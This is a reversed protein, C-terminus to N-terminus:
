RKLAQGLEQSGPYTHQLHLAGAHFAEAALRLRHVGLLATCLRPPLSSHLHRTWIHQQVVRQVPYHRWTLNAARM